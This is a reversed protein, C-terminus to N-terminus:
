SVMSLLNWDTVKLSGGGAGTIFECRGNWPSTFVYGRFSTQRDSVQITSYTQDDHTIFSPPPQPRFDGSLREGQGGYSGRSDPRGASYDHSLKKRHGFGGATHQAGEMWIRRRFINDIAPQRDRQPEPMRDQPLINPHYSRVSIDSTRNTLPPKGTNETHLFKSYGPNLVEIYMPAGPKRKIASDNDSSSSIDHTSPDEIRAVNWQAGSAPDRRILTLSTGSQQSISSPQRSSPVPRQNEHQYRTSDLSPQLNYDPVFMDSRQVYSGAAANQRSDFNNIPALTGPVPKRTPAVVASPGAPGGPVAKRQVAPSSRAPSTQYQGSHSYEQSIAENILNVDEPQEVHVFYLSSQIDEATM